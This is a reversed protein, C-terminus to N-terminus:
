RAAKLIGGYRRDRAAFAEVAAALDAEGFDPWAVDTFYLEAYPISRPGRTGGTRPGAM